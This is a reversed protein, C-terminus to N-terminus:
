FLNSIAFNWGPSAGGGLTYKQVGEWGQFVFKKWIQYNNCYCSSCILYAITFDSLLFNPMNPMTM